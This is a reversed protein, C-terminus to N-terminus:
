SRATELLSGLGNIFGLVLNIREPTFHNAEHSMVIVVGVVSKEWM